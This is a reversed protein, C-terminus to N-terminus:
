SGEIGRAPLLIVDRAYRSSGRAGSAEHVHIAYALAFERYLAIVLSSYRAQEAANATLLREDGDGLMRQRSYSWEPILNLMLHGDESSGGLRLAAPAQHPIYLEFKFFRDTNGDALLAAHGKLAAFRPIWIDRSRTDLLGLHSYSGDFSHGAYLPLVEDMLQPEERVWPRLGRAAARRVRMDPDGLAATM